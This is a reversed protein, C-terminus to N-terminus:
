LHCALSPLVEEHTQMDAVPVPAAALLKVGFNLETLTAHHTDVDSKATGLFELATVSTWGQLAWSCKAQHDLCAACTPAWESCTIAAHSPSVANSTVFCSSIGCLRYPRTM